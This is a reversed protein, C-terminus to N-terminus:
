RGNSGLNRGGIAQHAATHFRYLDLNHRQQNLGRLGKGTPPKSQALRPNARGVWRRPLLQFGTVGAARTVIKSRGTVSFPNEYNPSKKPVLKLDTKKRKTM